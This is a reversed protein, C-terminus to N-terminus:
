EKKKRKSFKKEPVPLGAKELYAVAEGSGKEAAANMYEVARGHDESDVLLAYRVCAKSYGLDASQRLYGLGLEEDVFGEEDLYIEALRFLARPSQSRELWMIALPVTKEIGKGWLYYEGLNTMGRQCGGRASKSYWYYAAESNQEVGNGYDFMVGANCAAKANGLGAAEIYLRAATEKDKEVNLGIAYCYALNRVGSSDGNDAAEEFLAISRKREEESGNALITGLLVMSSTCGKEVNPELLTKAEETENKQVKEYALAINGCAEEDDTLISVSPQDLM